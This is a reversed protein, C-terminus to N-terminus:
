SFHHAGTPYKPEVRRQQRRFIGAERMDSVIACGPSCSACSIRGSVPWSGIVSDSASAIKKAPKGFDPLVQICFRPAPTTQPMPGSNV